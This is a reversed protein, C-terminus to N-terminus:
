TIEACMKGKNHKPSTNKNIKIKSQRGSLGRTRGVGMNTEGAQVGLWHHDVLHREVLILQLGRRERLVYQLPLRRVGAPLYM